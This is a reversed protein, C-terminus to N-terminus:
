SVATSCSAAVLRPTGALWSSAKSSRSAAPCYRLRDNGPNLSGSNAAMGYRTNEAMASAMVSAARTAGPTNMPRHASETRRSALSGNSDTNTYLVSTCALIARATSTSPTRGLM